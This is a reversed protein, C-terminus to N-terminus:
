QNPLWFLVYVIPTGPTVGTPAEAPRNNRWKVADPDDSSRVLYWAAPGSAAELQERVRLALQRTGFILRWNVRSLMAGAPLRQRAWHCIMDVVMADPTSEM